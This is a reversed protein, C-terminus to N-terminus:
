LLVVRKLFIGQSNIKFTVIGEDMVINIGNQNDQYKKVAV